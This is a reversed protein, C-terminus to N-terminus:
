IEQLDLLEILESMHRFSYAAGAKLQPEKPLAGSYALVTMGARVGATIGAVSDEIVICNEPKVGLHEAAMLYLDPAPKGNKVDDICFRNRFREQLNLRELKYEMGTRHANTAMAIPVDLKDLVERIGPITQLSTEMAEHFEKRVNEAFDAPLPRGLFEAALRLNDATSFGAFHTHLDEETVNAGLENLAKQFLGNYLTETDCIVGDCDFIVAQYSFPM